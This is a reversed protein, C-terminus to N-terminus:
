LSSVMCRARLMKSIIRTESLSAVRLLSRRGRMITVVTISAALISYGRVGEILMVMLSSGSFSFFQTVLSFTSAMSRENRFMRSKSRWSSLGWVKKSLNRLSDLVFTSSFRVYSAFSIQKTALHLLSNLWNRGDCTAAPASRHAMFM